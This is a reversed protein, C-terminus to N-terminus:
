NTSKDQTKAEQTRRNTADHVRQWNIASWWNKLYQQKGNVGYDVLYAHEWVNLGLLPLIPYEDKRGVRLSGIQQAPRVNDLNWTTNPDLPQRAKIKFPTGANYTALVKLDSNPGLVLWVWGSGHISLATQFMLNRLASLAGFYM